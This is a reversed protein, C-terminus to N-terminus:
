SWYCPLCLLPLHQSTLTYSGQWAQHCMILSGYSYLICFRQQRHTVYCNAKHSCLPYWYFLLVYYTFMLVGINCFVSYKIKACLTQVKEYVHVCAYVCVCMCGCVSVCACACVHMCVYEHMKEGGGRQGWRTKESYYCYIKLADTRETKLIKNWHVCLCLQGVALFVYAHQCLCDCSHLLYCLLHHNTGCTKGCVHQEETSLEPLVCNAASIKAEPLHMKSTSANRNKVSLSFLENDQDINLLGQMQKLHKAM